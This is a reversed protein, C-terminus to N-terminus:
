DKEEEYGLDPLRKLREEIEYKFWAQFGHVSSEFKLGACGECKVGVPCSEKEHYQDCKNCCLCFSLSKELWGSEESEKFKPYFEPGIDVEVTYDGSTLTKVDWEIYRMDQKRAIYDIFNLIFLAMFTASCAILLSIEKRTSGEPMM